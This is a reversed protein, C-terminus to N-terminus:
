FAEAACAWNYATYSGSTLGTNISWNEDNDTWYVAYVDYSSGPNLGSITQTLEPSDETVGSQWVTSNAGFDIRKGWLNDNDVSTTGFATQPTVNLANEPDGDVYTLGVGHAINAGICATFVVASAAVVLSSVNSNSTRRLM